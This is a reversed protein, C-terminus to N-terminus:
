GTQPRFGPGGAQPPPADFDLADAIRDMVNFLGCIFIADELADDAVGAARVAAMDEPGVEAPHLTLKELLGLTVRLGDPVPATRWDRYVAEM